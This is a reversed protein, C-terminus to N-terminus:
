LFVTVENKRSGTILRMGMFVVGGGWNRGM